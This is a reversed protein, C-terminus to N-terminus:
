DTTALQVVLTLPEGAVLIRILCEHSIEFTPVKFHSNNLLGLVHLHAFLETSYIPFLDTSYCRIKYHLVIM